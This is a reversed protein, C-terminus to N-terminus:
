RLEGWISLTTTASSNTTDFSYTAGNPVIISLECTSNGAAYIVQYTILSSNIYANLYHNGGSGSTGACVCVMIPYGTSNTYTTGLARSSTLNQWTQSNTGLGAAQAQSSSNGFIISSSSPLTVGNSGDLVLSM